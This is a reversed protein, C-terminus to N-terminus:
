GLVHRLVSQAGEAYEWSRAAVVHCPPAWRRSTAEADIAALAPEFTTDTTTLVVILELRERFMEELGAVMAARTTGDDTLDKGSLVVVGVLGRTTRLRLLVSECDTPVRYSVVQEGVRHLLVALEYLTAGRHREAIESWWSRSFEFQADRMWGVPVYLTGRLRHRKKPGIMLLTGHQARRTDAWREVLEESGTQEVLDASFVPRPIAVLADIKALQEDTLTGGVLTVAPVDLDPEAAKVRPKRRAPRAAGPAAPQPGVIPRLAPQRTTRVPPEPRVPPDFLRDLPASGPAPAPVAPEVPTVPEAPTGTETPTTQDSPAAATPLPPEVPDALDPFDDMEDANTAAAATDDFTDDFSTDFADAPADDLEPFDGLASDDLPSDDLPSDDLPSDDASEGLEPFGTDDDGLPSDDMDADTMGADDLVGDDALEDDLPSDDLPSDDLPSDDLPSDDLPSDDSPSEGMGSELSTDDRNTAGDDLPAVEAAPAVGTAIASDEPTAVPAPAPAAVPTPAPAPAAVPVPTPAPAPAPAPTVAPFPENPAVPWPDPRPAERVAHSLSGPKAPVPGRAIVAAWQRPDDGTIPYGAQVLAARLEALGTAPQEAPQTLIWQLYSLFTEDDLESMRTRTSAELEAFRRPQATRLTSVITSRLRGLRNLVSAQKSALDSLSAQAGEYLTRYRCEPGCLEHNGHRNPRMTM